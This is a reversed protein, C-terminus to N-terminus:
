VDVTDGHTYDHGGSACPLTSGGDVCMLVPEVVECVPVTSVQRDMLILMDIESTTTTAAGTGGDAGGSSAGKKAEEDAQKLMM